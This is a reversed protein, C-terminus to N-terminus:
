PLVGVPGNMPRPRKGDSSLLRWDADTKLLADFKGKLLHFMIKQAHREPTNRNPTMTLAQPKM